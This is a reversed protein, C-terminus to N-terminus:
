LDTVSERFRSVVDGPGFQGGSDGLFDRSSDALDELRRQPTDDVGGANHEVRIESAGNKRFGCDIV